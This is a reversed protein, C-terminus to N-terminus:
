QWPAWWVRGIALGYRGLLNCEYALCASTAVFALLATFSFFSWRRAMICRRALVAACMAALPCVVNVLLTFPDSVANGCWLVGQSAYLWRTAHRWQAASLGAYAFIVTALLRNMPRVLRFGM